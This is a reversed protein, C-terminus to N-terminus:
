SKSKEMIVKPIIQIKFFLYLKSFGKALDKM